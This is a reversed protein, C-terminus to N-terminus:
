DGQNPRNTGLGGSQSRPSTDVDLSVNEIAIFEDLGPIANETEIPENSDLGDNRITISEDSSLEGNGITVTEDSDQKDNDISITEISDLIDNSVSLPESIVLRNSGVTLFESKTDELKEPYPESITLTPSDRRSIDFLRSSRRVASSYGDQVAKKVSKMNLLHVSRASLSLLFGVASVGICAYLVLKVSDLYSKIAIGRVEEDTIAWLASTYGKSVLTIEAEWEPHDSILGATKKSFNFIHISKSMALGIVGGVNRSFNILATASALDTQTVVSQAEITVSPTRFGVGLGVLCLYIIEQTKKPTGDLTSLLGYGLVLLFGGIWLYPKFNGYLTISLGTIISSITVGMIWPWTKIGAEITSSNYVARGYTPILFLGAYIVIGTMMASLCGVWVNHEKLVTLAIIPEKKTYKEVYIFVALIILGVVLLVLFIITTHSTVRGLLDFALFISCSASVILIIGLFDIRVIKNKMTGPTEPLIILFLVLISAVFLVPINILHIWRWGLRETMVGGILPGMSQGLLSAISTFGLYTGRARIPIMDSLIILALVQIGGAGIGMISRMIILLTVSNSFGAVTSSAFLIFICAKLLITRGLVDSLKGYIPQLGTSTLMFSQALWSINNFGLEKGISESATSIM